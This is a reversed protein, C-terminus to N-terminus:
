NLFSPPRTHRTPNLKDKVSLAPRDLDFSISRKKFGQAIAAPQDRRFITAARLPLAPAAGNYYIVACNDRAGHGGLISGSLAHKREFSEAFFLSSDKRVTKDGPSAQL